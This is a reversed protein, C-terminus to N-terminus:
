FVCIFVGFTFGRVMPIGLAKLDSDTM